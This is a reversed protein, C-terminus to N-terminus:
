NTTGYLVQAATKPPTPPKGGVFTPDSQAQKGLALFHKIVTPHNGLGSAALLDKLEPSGWADLGAKAVALNKLLSSQWRRRSSRSGSTPWPLAM